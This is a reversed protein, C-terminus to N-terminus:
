AERDRRSAHEFVREVGREDALAGAADDPAPEADAIRVDIERQRADFGANADNGVDSAADAQGFSAPDEETIRLEFVLPGGNM